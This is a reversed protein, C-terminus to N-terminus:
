DNLLVFNIMSPNMVKKGKIKMNLRVHECELNYEDSMDYYVGHPLLSALRYIAFGSFCSVVDIPPEGRKYQVGLGKKIDHVTKTNIHFQDGHDIYAYTDYFLTLFGWRYIGNACVVDVNPHQSLYGMSHLIGDLYVAGVTDIDWMIVFNGFDSYHQKIEQLYINRLHTMKEIRQRDVYHGETKKQASSLSISCKDANIGCGLIIIKPNRRSWSLLYSRTADKSNNEVLLVRYDLFMNGVKEIKKEIEPLKHEVDRLLATIIVKQTKAFYTGHKLLTNYMNKHTESIPFTDPTYLSLISSNYMIQLRWYCKWVVFIFLCVVLFFWQKHDM